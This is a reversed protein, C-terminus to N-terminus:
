KLVKELWLSKISDKGYKLSTLKGHSSYDKIKSPTSILSYIAESLNDVSEAEVLEGNFGHEIIESPGTPCDFSIVANGANQAEVIVLGFGEFRSSLVFVQSSQYYPLVDKVAGVFEIRDSIGLINAQEKLEAELTGGGVLRLKWDPVRDSILSFANILLDFGKQQELRGVGLVYKPRETVAASDTTNDTKGELISVPNIVKIARCYKNYKQLDSDTLALVKYAFPYLARRAYQWIKSPLDHHIHEYAIVKKNLGLTSLITLCNTSTWNTVIFDPNAQKIIKRTRLILKINDLTFYSLGSLENDDKCFGLSHRKVFSPVEFFDETESRITLLECEINKDDGLINLLSHVVRDTGGCHMAHNVFMIKM